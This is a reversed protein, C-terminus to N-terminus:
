PVSFEDASGGAFGDPAKAVDLGGGIGKAGGAGHALLTGNLKTPTDGKYVLAYSPGGNGGAGSGGPGGNGGAGGSGAKGVSTGGDPGDYALGGPAGPKGAGGPGGNGGKAGAGGDTAVLECRDLTLASQWNLVAVSAGGSAGGTGPKGGCGGM